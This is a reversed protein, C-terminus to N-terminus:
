SYYYIIVLVHYEYILHSVTLNHGLTRLSHSQSFPSISLLSCLPWRFLGSGFSSDTLKPQNICDSKVWLPAFRCSDPFSFFFFFFFKRRSVSACAINNGVAGRTPNPRVGNHYGQLLM